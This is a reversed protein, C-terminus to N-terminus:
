VIQFSRGEALVLDILVQEETHDITTRASISFVLELGATQNRDFNVQVHSVRPEYQTIARHIDKSIVRLMDSSGVTADNFDQMGYDPSSLAEGSRANLIQVLNNKISAVRVGVHDTPPILVQLDDARIREFLSVQRRSAATSVKGSRRM